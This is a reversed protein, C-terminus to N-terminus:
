SHARKVIICIHAGHSRNAVIKNIDILNKMSIIRKPERPSLGYYFMRTDFEKLIQRWEEIPMLREDGRDKTAYFISPLSAVIVKAIHLQKEILLYIEENTFHELFGQSFCIDFTKAPFDLKFADRILFHARGRFKSNNKRAKEILKTNNDIGIV